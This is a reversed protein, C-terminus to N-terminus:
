NTRLLYGGMLVTILTGAFLAPAFPITRSVHIRAGKGRDIWWRRLTEAQDASLGDPGIDGLKSNVLDMDEKLVERTKRALIMRPRLQWVGIARFDFVNLYLEYVVLFLVVGISLAGVQLITRVNYEPTPFAAAYGIFGFTALVVPIGVWKRRMLRSLPYFVLFLVFYVATPSVIPTTGTVLDRLLMRLTKIVLFLFLVGVFGVVLDFAHGKVWTGATRWAEAEEPTPRAAQRAGRVALEVVLIVLVALFTNFLLVYSPFAPWFAGSYSSLPLLLALVAFLKADGAAWLGFWWLAFGALLALFANLAVRGLYASLGPSAPALPGIGQDESAASGRASGTSSATLPDANAPAPSPAVSVEPKGAAGALGVDEPAPPPPPPAAEEWWWTGLEPFADLATPGGFARWAGLLLLWAAAIVLGARLAKNYVKGRALDTLACAGALVVAAAQPIWEITM